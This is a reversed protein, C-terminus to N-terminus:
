RDWRWPYFLGLFIRRGRRWDEHVALLEKQVAQCKFIPRITQGSVNTVLYYVVSRLM